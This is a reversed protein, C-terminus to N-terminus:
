ETANGDSRDAFFGSWAIDLAGSVIFHPNLLSDKHNYLLPQLHETL